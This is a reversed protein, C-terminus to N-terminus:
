GTEMWVDPNARKARLVSDTLDTARASLVAPRSAPHLEVDVGFLHMKEICGRRSPNLKQMLSFGAGKM